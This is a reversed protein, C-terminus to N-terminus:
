VGYRKPLLYNSANLSKESEIPLIPSTSKISEKLSKNWYERLQALTPPVSDYYKEFRSKLTSKKKEGSNLSMFSKNEPNGLVVITSPVSSTNESSRCTDTLSEKVIIKPSPLTENNLTSILPMVICKRDKQRKQFVEMQNQLTNDEGIQEVTQYDESSEEIDNILVQAEALKTELSQLLEDTGREIEKDEEQVDFLCLMMQGFITQLQDVFTELSLYFADAQFPQKFRPEQYSYLKVTMGEDKILMAGAKNNGNYGASSFVTFMIPIQDENEFDHQQVGDVCEHARIIARLDNDQLFNVVANYGYFYSCERSKNPLYNVDFWDDNIDGNEYKEDYVEYQLPDSWLLDCFVGTDPVEVFRNIQQLQDIFQLSPSIGGHCLFFNGLSLSLLVCLPLTKFLEIFENYITSNYKWVCEREFGFIHTMSLSEHNGRLLVVKDPENIKMCILTIMTEVSYKGRDVYDGLFVKVHDIEKWQDDNLINLFNFYNGHIDGFVVTRKNLGVMNPESRFITKAKSIITLLAEKSVMEGHQFHEELIDLDYKGNIYFEKHNFHTNEM